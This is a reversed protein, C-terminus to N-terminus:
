IFKKYDEVLVVNLKVPKLDWLHIVVVVKTDKHGLEEYLEEISITVLSISNIEVENCEVM